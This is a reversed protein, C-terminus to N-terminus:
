YPLVVIYTVNGANLRLRPKPAWTIPAAVRPRAL